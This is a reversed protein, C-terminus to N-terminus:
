EWEQPSIDILGAIMARYVASAQTKAGLATKVAAIHKNATDLSIHLKDAAGGLTVNGKALVNLLQQQRDTINIRKRFVKAGFFFAAFRAMAINTLIDGLLYLMPQCTEILDRFANPEMGLHTASFLCNTGMPTTYPINYSDLWEIEKAAACLELFRENSEIHLPSNKVYDAITSFFIASTQTEAHQSVLDYARYQEYKAKFEAPWNSLQNPESIGVPRFCFGDLGLVKLAKVVTTELQRPTDAQLLQSYFRFDDKELPSDSPVLASAVM